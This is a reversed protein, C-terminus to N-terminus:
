EQLAVSIRSAVFTNSAANFEGLAVLRYIKNTGTFTSSIASAFGSASNYVSVGTSPTTSGIALRLNSQDAGTTTILPSAPLSKILDLPPAPGTRIEHITGLNGNTLDVVVGSASASTFPMTAGGNVWEVVLQQVTASGQAIASATFDPPAAGFPTVFGDVQLLTAAAVGSEDLTGTNVAYAAPNAAQSGTGAFNFGAAALDGLTLVDLIANGATASNLTGWIRTPALRVWGAPSGTPAPASTADLTLNGSADISCQGSITLEQGISISTPSLASVVAGDETVSTGSDITVTAANFFTDNYVTVCSTGTAVPRTVLHAGGLTLANGSRATVVGRVEDAIPSELGTGAYVATAHFGPTIGSLDALTGYAAILTNEPLSAMATLGAAGTYVTGNVNFYTSSDTAVTVAGDTTAQDNLPRVNIIYDSSGSQTTVLLGRVRLPTTDAPAPTMVLFPRVTVKPTSGSTDISNMAGLDIHIALRSSKGPTVTFQNNPDFTVTVPIQGVPNSSHNVATAAATQGNVYINAYTYDLTFTASKYTGSPLAPVEILESVDSLRALDIIWITAGTPPLPHVTGGTDTLTISDIGVRYSTFDGRTVSLTIVPTGPPSSSGGGCSSLMAAGCMIPLLTRAASRRNRVVTM